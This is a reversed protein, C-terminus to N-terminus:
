RQAQLAAFVRSLAAADVDAGVLIRASGFAIEMMGPGRSPAALDPIILAPAFGAPADVRPDRALKRWTYLQGSSIGHRRATASVMRHGQFSEEVIRLKEVASWRRRAGTQIVDLRSVPSSTTDSAM